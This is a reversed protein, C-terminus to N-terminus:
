RHRGAATEATCHCRDLRHRDLVRVASSPRLGVPRAAFHASRIEERRVPDSRRMTSRDVTLDPAATLMVLHVTLKAVPDIPSQSALPTHDGAALRQSHAHRLILDVTQHLRAHPQRHVGTHVSRRGVVSRDTRLDESGTQPRAVSPHEVAPSSRPPPTQGILPRRHDFQGDVAAGVEPRSRTDGENGSRDGIDIDEDVRPDPDDITRGRHHVSCHHHSRVPDAQEVPLQLLAGHIQGLDRSDDLLVPVTTAVLNGPPQDFQDAVTGRCLRLSPADSQEPLCPDLPPFDAPLHRDASASVHQVQCEDPLADGDLDVPQGPVGIRVPELRIPTPLVLEDVRPPPDEAESPVFEHLPWPRDEGGDPRSEIGPAM